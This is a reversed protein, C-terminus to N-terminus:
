DPFPINIIYERDPIYVFVSDHLEDFLCIVVMRSDLEHVASIDSLSVVNRSVLTKLPSRNAFSDINPM